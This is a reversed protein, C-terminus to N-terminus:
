SPTNDPLFLECEPDSESKKEQTLELRKRNLNEMLLFVKFKTQQMYISLCLFACWDM